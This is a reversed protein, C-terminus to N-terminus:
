ADNISLRNLEEKFDKFWQKDKYGALVWRGMSRNIIGILNHSYEEEMKEM